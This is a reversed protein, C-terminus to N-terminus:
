MEPVGMCVWVCASPVDVHMTCAYHVNTKTCPREDQVVGGSLFDFSWPCLAMM